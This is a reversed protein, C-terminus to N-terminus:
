AVGWHTKAWAMPDTIGSPIPVCDFLSINGTLQSSGNLAGLQYTGAIQANAKAAETSNVEGDTFAVWSSSFARASIQTGTAASFCTILDIPINTAHTIYVESDIYLGGVRKRGLIKISSM